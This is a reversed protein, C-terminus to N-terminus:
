WKDNLGCDYPSCTWSSKGTVKYVCYPRGDGRMASECTTKNTGSHWPCDYCEWDPRFKMLAWLGALATSGIVAM